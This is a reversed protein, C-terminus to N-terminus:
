GHKVLQPNDVNTSSILGTYKRLFILAGATDPLYGMLFLSPWKKKPYDITIAMQHRRIEDLTWWVIKGCALFTGGAHV